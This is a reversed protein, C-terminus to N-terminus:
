DWKSNVQLQKRSSSSWRALSSWCPQKLERLMAHNIYVFSIDYTNFKYHRKCSGRTLCKAKAGRPLLAQRLLLAASLTLFQAVPVRARVPGALTPPLKPPKEPSELKKKGFTLLKALRRMAFDFADFLVKCDLSRSIKFHLLHKSPVTKRHM